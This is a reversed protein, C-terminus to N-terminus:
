PPPSGSVVNVAPKSADSSPQHDPDDGHEEGAMSGSVISSNDVLASSEASDVSLSDTSHMQRLRQREEHRLKRAEKKRKKLQHAIYIEQGEKSLTLLNAADTATIWVKRETDYGEADPPGGAARLLHAETPPWETPDVVGLRDGLLESIRQRQWVARAKTDVEAFVKDVVNWLLSLAGQEFPHVAPPPVPADMVTKTAVGRLFEVSRFMAGWNAMASHHHQQQEHQLAGSEEGRASRTHEDHNSHHVTCSAGDDDHAFVFVAVRADDASSLTLVRQSPCLSLSTPSFSSYKSHQEGSKNAMTKTSSSSGDVALPPVSPPAAYKEVNFPFVASLLEDGTHLSFARVLGESTLVFLARTLSELRVPGICYDLVGNLVEQQVGSGKKGGLKTGAAAGSAKTPFNISLHPFPTHFQHTDMLLIAFVYEIVVVQGGLLHNVRSAVSSASSVRKLLFVTDLGDHSM